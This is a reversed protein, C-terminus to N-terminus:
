DRPGAQLVDWGGPLATAFQMTGFEVAVDNEDPGTARAKFSWDGIQRVMLISQSPSGDLDVEFVAMTPATQGPLTLIEFPREVARAHPWNQEIQSYASDFAQQETAEFSYRTAFVTVFTRGIWTACSVDEGAASPSGYLRIVDRDDQGVFECTMGSPTHRVVPTDSVTINVFWDGAGARAIVADAHARAEGPSMQAAAPLAAAMSVISLLGVISASNFRMASLLWPEAPADM